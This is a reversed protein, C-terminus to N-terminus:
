QTQLAFDYEKRATKVRFLLKEVMVILLVQVLLLQKESDDGKM